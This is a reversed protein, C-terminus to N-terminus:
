GHSESSCKPKGSSASFPRSETSLTTVIAEKVRPTFHAWNEPILLRRVSPATALDAMSLVAQLQVEAPQRPALLPELMDGAEPLRVYGILAIADLREPVPANDTAGTAEQESLMAGQFCHDSGQRGACRLHRRSRPSGAGFSREVAYGM